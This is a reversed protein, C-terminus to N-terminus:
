SSTPDLHGTVVFKPQGFPLQVSTSLPRRRPTIVGSSGTRVASRRVSTGATWVKVWRSSM